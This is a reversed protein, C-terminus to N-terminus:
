LKISVIGVKVGLDISSLLHLSLPINVNIPSKFLFNSLLRLNSSGNTLESFNVAFQRM